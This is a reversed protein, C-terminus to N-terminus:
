VKGGVYPNNFEKEQELKKDMIFLTIVDLPIMYSATTYGHGSASLTNVGVMEGNENFTGSGSSGGFIVATHHQYINGNVEIDDGVFGETIANVMFGPNSHTQVRDYTKARTRSIKAVPMNGHNITILCLDAYKSLVRASSKTDKKKIGKFEITFPKAINKAQKALLVKSTDMAEKLHVEDGKITLLFVIFANAEIAKELEPDRNIGDCVHRNTLITSHTKNTDIIHGSGHGFEGVVKTLARKHDYSEPIDSTIMNLIIAVVATTFVLSLALNLLIRITKM